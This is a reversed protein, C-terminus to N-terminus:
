LNKFNLKYERMYIIKLLEHDISDNDSIPEYNKDEYRYITNLVESTDGALPLWIISSMNGAGRAAENFEDGIFKPSVVVVRFVNGNKDSYVGGWFYRGDYNEGSPLDGIRHFAQENFSSFLILCIDFFPANSKFQYYVGFRDSEMQIKDFFSMRLNDAHAFSLFFIIYFLKM